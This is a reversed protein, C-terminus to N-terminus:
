RKERCRSLYERPTSVLEYQEEILQRARSRIQAAQTPERLLGIVTHRVQMVHAM